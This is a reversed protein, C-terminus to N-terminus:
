YMTIVNVLYSSRANKAIYLTINYHCSMSNQYNGVMLVLANFFSEVDRAM